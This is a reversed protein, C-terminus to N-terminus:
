AERSKRISKRLEAFNERAVALHRAAEDSLTTDKAAKIIDEFTQITSETVSM